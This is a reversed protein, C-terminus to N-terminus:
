RRKSWRVRKAKLYLQQALTLKDKGNPLQSVGAGDWSFVHKENSHETLILGERLLYMIIGGNLTYVAGSMNGQEALKMLSGNIKHLQENGTLQKNRM